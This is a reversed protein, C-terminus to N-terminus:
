TLEILDDPDGGGFVHLSQVKLEVLLEVLGDWSFPSRGYRPGTLFWKDGDAKLVAFTCTTMENEPLPGGSPDIPVYHGGQIEIMRVGQSSSRPVDIEASFRIITGDDFDDDPFKEYKKLETETEAMQRIMAERARKLEERSNGMTTSGETQISSYLKQTLQADAEAYDYLTQTPPPQNFMMRGTASLHPHSGGSYLLKFLEAKLMRRDTPGAADRIGDQLETIRRARYDEDGKGICSLVEDWEM